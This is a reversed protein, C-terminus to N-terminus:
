QVGPRPTDRLGNVSVDIEVIELKKRLHTQSSGPIATKRMWLCRILLKATFMWEM